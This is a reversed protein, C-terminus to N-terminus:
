KSVEHFEEVSLGVQNKWGVIEDDIEVASAKCKWCIVLRSETTKSVNLTVDRNDCFPCSEEVHSEHRYEHMMVPRYEHIM